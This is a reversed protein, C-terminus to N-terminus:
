IEGLGNLEIEHECGTHSCECSESETKELSQCEASCFESDTVQCHCSPHACECAENAPDPEDDTYDHPIADSVEVHQVEAEPDADMPDIIHLASAEPSPEDEFSPLDQNAEDSMGDSWDNELHGIKGSTM